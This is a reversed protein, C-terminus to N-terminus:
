FPLEEWTKKTDSWMHNKSPRPPADMPAIYAKQGYRRNNQADIYEGVGLKKRVEDSVDGHKTDQGNAWRQKANQSNQECTAIYNERRKTADAIWPGVIAKYLGKPQENAFVCDFFSKYCQLQEAPELEQLCEYWENKFLIDIKNIEQM